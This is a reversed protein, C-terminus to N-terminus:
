SRFKLYATFIRLGGRVVVDWQTPILPDSTYNHFIKVFFYKMLDQLQKERDDM